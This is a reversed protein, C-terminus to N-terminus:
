AEYANARCNQELEVAETCQGQMAWHSFAMPSHLGTACPVPALACRNIM